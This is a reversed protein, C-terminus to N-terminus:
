RIGIGSNLIKLFKEVLKVGLIHAMSSDSLQDFYFISSIQPKFNGKDYTSLLYAMLIKQFNRWASVM